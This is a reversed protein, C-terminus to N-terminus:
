YWVSVNAGSVLILFENVSFADQFRSRGVRVRIPISAGFLFLVVARDGVEAVDVAAVDIM